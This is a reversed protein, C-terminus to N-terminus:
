VGLSPYGAQHSHARLTPIAVCVRPRCCGSAEGGIDCDWWARLAGSRFISGHISVIRLRSSLRNEVARSFIRSPVLIKERRSSFDKEHPASAAQPTAPKPSPPPPIRGAAGGQGRLHPIGGHKQAPNGTFYSDGLARQGSRCPHPPAEPWTLRLSFRPAM